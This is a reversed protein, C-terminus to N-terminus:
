TMTFGYKLSNVPVTHYNNVQAIVVMYITGDAIQNNGKIFFSTNILFLLLFEVSFTSLHCCFYLTLVFVM